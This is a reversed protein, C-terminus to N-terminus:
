HHNEIVRPRREEDISDQTGVLIIPISSFNESQLSLREYFTLLAHFSTDDTVDFVFMVANAWNAIQNEIFLTEPATSVEHDFPALSIPSGEERILMLLSDEGLQIEKKFRGGEESEEPQYIKTLFHHVLASKGSNMTGLVALRVQNELIVNPETWEPSSVFFHEVKVMANRASEIESLFEDQDESVKSELRDLIDYVEFIKPHVYEFRHIESRIANQIFNGSFVVESDSSSTRNSDLTNGHSNSM